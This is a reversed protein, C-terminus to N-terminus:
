ITELPEYKLIGKVTLARHHANNFSNYFRAFIHIKEEVSKAKKYDALYKKASAHWDM